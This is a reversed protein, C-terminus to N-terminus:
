KKTELATAAKSRSDGLLQTLAAKADTESLGNKLLKVYATYDAFAQTGNYSYSHEFEGVRDRTLIGAFNTYGFTKLRASAADFDSGAGVNLSVM